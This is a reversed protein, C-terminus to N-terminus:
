AAFSTFYQYSYALRLKIDTGMTTALLISEAIVTTDTSESHYDYWGIVGEAIATNWTTTTGGLVTSSSAYAYSM